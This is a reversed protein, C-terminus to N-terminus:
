EGRKATEANTTLQLFTSKSGLEQKVRKQIFEVQEGTFEGLDEPQKGLVLEIIEEAFRELNAAPNLSRKHYGGREIIERIQKEYKM